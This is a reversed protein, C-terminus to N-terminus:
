QLIDLHYLLYYCSVLEIESYIYNTKFALHYQIIYAYVM